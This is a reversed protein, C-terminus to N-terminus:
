PSPETQDPGAPSSNAGAAELPLLDEVGSVAALNRLQAPINVFSLPTGRTRAERTLAVLVALGASDARVVGGLDLTLPGQGLLQRGQEWLVRASELSLDGNLTHAGHGAADLRMNGNAHRRRM